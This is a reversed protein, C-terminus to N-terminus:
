LPGGARLFRLHFPGRVAGPQGRGDGLDAPARLAEQEVLCRPGRPFLSRSAQPKEGGGEGEGEGEKSAVPELQDFAQTTLTLDAGYSFYLGGGTSSVDVAKKLLEVYKGDDPHAVPEPGLVRFGTARFVPHGRLTGALEASTVFAVALGQLLKGCGLIAWANFPKSTTGMGAPAEFSALGIVGHSLEVTLSPAETAPLPEGTAGDLPTVFVLSGIQQIRLERHTTSAM